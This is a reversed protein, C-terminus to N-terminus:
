SSSGDMSVPLCPKANVMGYRRGNRMEYNLYLEGTEDWAQQRGEERGNRFHRVHLPRGNEYWTRYEGEFMDDGITAAGLRPGLGHVAGILVAVILGRATM